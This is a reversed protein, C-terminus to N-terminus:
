IPSKKQNGESHAKHDKYNGRFTKYNVFSCELSGNFLLRKSAPKLGVKGLAKKSSSLIWADSDPYKHKLTNGIMGYLSEIDAPRMREGYPPNLILTTGEMGASDAFDGEEVTIIHQLDMQRVQRRTLEVADPDKDRAIIPVVVEKEDALKQAVYEMLDRDFDKWSEFGYQKRFIGPPINSALLAAEIALTGSGCMPDLFPTRGEWGSLMVMGAALVENLPAEFYGQGTRYGRRHLSGGSSDLSITVRSGSIHVNILLDPQKRNVSPRLGTSERFRDAIADKVRQSVFQSNRFQPSYVVSDIAFTMRNDLYHSWDFRKVNRYLADQDGAEFNLIPFLVRLALRSALNVRYLLAMGGYFDVGRNVVQTRVAGLSKLENALVPELGKLTKAHFKVDGAM